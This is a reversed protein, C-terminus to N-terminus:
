PKRKSKPNTSTKPITRDAASLIIKTFSEITDDAALVIQADLEDECITEFSHWDATLNGGQCERWRIPHSMSLSSQFIIVAVSAMM